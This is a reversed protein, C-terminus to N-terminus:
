ETSEKKRRGGKKKAALAKVECLDELGHAIAISRDKKCVERVRDPWITYALHAWDYDGKELKKWCDETDKAWSRLGFLKHLPAANITVGDNLNPKYPLAAVRLLEDKFDRLEDRFTRGENLRDRLRAADRGSETALENEIRSLGREVEAIKPDVYKNVVAYLTQDTLRQYYLWITYSGGTTSLPWYIPAKRRSKFYRKLHDQFFGGPKGFYDRLDVVGLIDCAEREIDSAKDKWLLDLVERVRRVIDERHPLAGNLGPDDVMIGDWSIHLPYESDSVISKSVSGEPPLTGADPRAGLWEESVIRGSEASLGEPNVLMGPPCAPLPDFPGPLKPALGPKLAIRVDWRGFICGVIYSLGAEEIAAPSTDLVFDTNDEEEKEATEETSSGGCRQFDIAELLDREIAVVQDPSFGYAEAVLREGKEDLLTEPSFGLARGGNSLDRLKAPMLFEHFPEHNQYALRRQEVEGKILKEFYVCVEDSVEPWPLMKVTEVLFNPWLFKEGYFRMFASVIRSACVGLAEAERGNGPFAMYRSVSPICSTPIM